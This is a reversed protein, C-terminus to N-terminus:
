ANSGEEGAKKKELKEFIMKYGDAGYNLCRNVRSITATSAGTKECIETYTKKQELMKAVELRQALAKIESITGIDEFFRYCEEINELLLIAEFLKDVSEDRIKSNM